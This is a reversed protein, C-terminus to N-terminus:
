SQVSNENKLMCKVTAQSPFVPSFFLLSIDFTWLIFRHSESLRSFYQDFGSLILFIDSKHCLIFFCSAFEFKYVTLIYTKFIYASHIKVFLVLQLVWHSVSLSVCLIRLIRHLSLFLTFILSMSMYLSLVSVHMNRKKRGGDRLALKVDRGIGGM